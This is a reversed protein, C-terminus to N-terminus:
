MSFSKSYYFHARRAEVKMFRQVVHVKKVEMKVFSQVVHMKRGGNERFKTTSKKAFYIFIMIIKNVILVHANSPFAEIDLSFPSLV